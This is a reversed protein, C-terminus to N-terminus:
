PKVKKLSYSVIVTASFLLSSLVDLLHPVMLSLKWTTQVLFKSFSIHEQTQVTGEVQENSVPFHPSKKKEM